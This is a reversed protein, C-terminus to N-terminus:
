FWDDEILPKIDAENIATQHTEIFNDRGEFWGLVFDRKLQTPHTTTLTHYSSWPWDRFDDVFNHRQSNQHIYTILQTFYRESQVIKRKFPKEMLSGSRQYAKNIAKAYAIFLNNFHRHPPKLITEPDSVPVSKSVAGTQNIQSRREEDTRIRVLVHFHNRLLCYAFTEAVRQIHTAYLKLFYRYNREEFFINSGNNGRNYIHYYQGPLLPTDTTM